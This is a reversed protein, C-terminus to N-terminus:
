VATQEIAPAAPLSQGTALRLAVFFAAGQGLQSEVWLRGNMLDVMRRALALGLGAGEHGRSAASEVQSFADFILRHNGPAIGIGTDRVCLEVALHHEKQGTLRATLSVTGAKTFKIGNRLLHMLVHRLQIPDGRVAVSLEPAIAFSVTLGKETAEPAIEREVGELLEALAFPQDTLKLTRGELRALDVLHNVLQLLKRASGRAVDLFGRQEDTLETDLTLDIFGMVSQLPTRLEHGVNALFESKARSSQEADSRAQDLLRGQSRLQHVLTRNVGQARAAGARLRQDARASTAIYAGALYLLTVKALETSWSPPRHDIVTQALPVTM